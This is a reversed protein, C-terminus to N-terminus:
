QVSESTPSPSSPPIPSIRGVIFHPDKVEASGKPYSNIMMLAGPNKKNWRAMAFKVRALDAIPFPPDLQEGPALLEFPYSRSRYPRAPVFGPKSVYNTM